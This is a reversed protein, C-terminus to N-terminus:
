APPPPIVRALVPWRQAAAIVFHPVLGAAALYLLPIVLQEGLSKTIQRPWLSLLSARTRQAEAITASLMEPAHVTDADIFLLYDGGATGALQECAWAKGLDM